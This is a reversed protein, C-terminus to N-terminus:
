FQLVEASPFFTGMCTLAEETNGPMANAVKIRVTVVTPVAYPFKGTSTLQGQDLAPEKWVPLSRESCLYVKCGM